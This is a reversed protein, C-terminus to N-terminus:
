RDPGIRYSFTVGGLMADATYVGQNLQDATQTRSTRNVVRGRRESMFLLMFFADATLSPTVQYGAGLSLYARHNEPLMPTVTVDPAARTGYNFGGRVVLGPSWDYQAGLRFSHADDYELILESPLLPDPAGPVGPREFELPFADWASWGYWQYDALLQLARTAQFALGIVAQAPLEIETTVGQDTFPGGEAFLVALQPVAPIVQALPTGAPVGFPNGAPLVADTMSFRATADDFDLKVKHMYRAGLSLRDTLQALLGVHGSVGWADGSLRIDVLDVTPMGFQALTQRQNIEISARVVDVGVGVSLRGPMVQYAVTPQLYLGRLSTDYSVQRGSFHLPWDISLGYPAWVGFGLALRENVPYSLWGHPVPTTAPGRETVAPEGSPAQGADWSFTNETRIVTVGLGIVGPLTALAAPNYFVASGDTCPSAVGAGNRASMCASHTYVASGQAQVDTVAVMTLLALGAVLVHRRM